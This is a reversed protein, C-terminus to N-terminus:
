MLQLNGGDGEGLPMLTSTLKHLVEADPDVDPQWGIVTECSGVATYVTGDPEWNNNNKEAIDAGQM